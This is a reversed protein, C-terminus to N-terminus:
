NLLLREEPLRHTIEGPTSAGFKKLLASIETRAWHRKPLVCFISQLSDVIVVRQLEHNSIATQERDSYLKDVFGEIDLLSSIQPMEESLKQVAEMMQARVGHFRILFEDIADGVEIEPGEGRLRGLIGFMAEADSNVLANIAVERDGRHGVSM